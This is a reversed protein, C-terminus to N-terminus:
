NVSMEKECLAGMIFNVAADAQQQSDLGSVTCEVGFSCDEDNQFTRLSVLMERKMGLRATLRSQGEDTNNLEETSM